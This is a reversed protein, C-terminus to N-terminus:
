YNGKHQENEERTMWRLHSPRVCLANEGHPCTHGAEHLDSPPVGRFRQCVLRAVIVVRSGRGAMQVVPRRGRRKASLAGTWEWCGTRPQVRIKRSVRRWLTSSADGLPVALSFNGM